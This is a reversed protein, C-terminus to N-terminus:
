IGLGLEAMHEAIEDMDDYTNDSLWREKSWIEVRNLVGVSMVEKELGAYEKLSPPILVRGQKDVECEAAGAFFFRLFKRADKTTLPIERFKAEITEWESLSYVFLCGDLGKTAIFKDGLQERFKAPMILRNKADINHSYEGMFM